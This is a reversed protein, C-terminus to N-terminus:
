HAGILEVTFLLSHRGEARLKEQRARFFGNLLLLLFPAAVTLAFGYLTNVFDFIIGFSPLCVAVRGVVSAAPTLFPDAAPNNDGKTVLYSAEGQQEIGVIRHVIQESHVEPDPFVVVEGVQLKEPDVSGLILGDRTNINPAMSNSVVVKIPSMVGQVLIVTNVVMATLFLIIVATQIFISSAKRGSKARGSGSSM